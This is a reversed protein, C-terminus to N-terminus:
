RPRARQTAYHAAAIADALHPPPAARLWALQVTSVPPDRLPKFTVGSRGLNAFSAPQPSIGIGASVLGLQSEIDRGEMATRPAFGEAQCYALVQDHFLPSTTRPWLIFQEDRLDAGTLISAEALRHDSPLAIMMPESFLDELQIGSAPGASRVVGLDLEAARLAALQPPTDLQTLQLTLGPLREQLHRVFDPTVSNLAAGISGIRIHGIGGASISRCQAFAREVDVLIRQAQIVFAAGAPTLRVQRSTRELLAAGVQRELRRIQQSLAPQTLGLHHAAHGFHLRQAVELFSVLLETDM